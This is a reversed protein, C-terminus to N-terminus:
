PRILSGSATTLQRMRPAMMMLMFFLFNIIAAGALPDRMRGSFARVTGVAFLLLTFVPVTVLTMFPAYYWPASFKYFKGLFLLPVVM